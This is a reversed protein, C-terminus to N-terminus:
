DPPLVNYKEVVLRPPYRRKPDSETAANRSPDPSGEIRVVARTAVEAMVQYNTCLGRYPGPTRVVSNEAPRLAQGFGYIVVYPEDDKLLPYAEQWNDLVGYCGRGAKKTRAEKTRTVYDTQFAVGFYESAEGTAPDLTCDFACGSEDTNWAHLIPLFKPTLVYGEVYVLGKKM